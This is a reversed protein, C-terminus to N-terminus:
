ELDVCVFRTLRICSGVEVVKYPLNRDGLWAEFRPNKANTWTYFFTYLFYVGVLRTKNGGGREGWEEAGFWAFAESTHDLKLCETKSATKNSYQTGKCHICLCLWCCLTGRFPSFLTWLMWFLFLGLGPIKMYLSTSSLLIYTTGSQHRNPCHLGTSSRTVVYIGGSKKKIYIQIIHLFLLISFLLLPSSLPPFM